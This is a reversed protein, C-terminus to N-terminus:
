TQNSLNKMFRKIQNLVLIIMKSLSLISITESSIVVPIVSHGDFVRLYSCHGPSKEGKFNNPKYINDFLSVRNENYNRAIGQIQILLNHRLKLIDLRQFKLQLIITTENLIDSAIIM